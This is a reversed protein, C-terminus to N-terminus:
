DKKEKDCSVIIVLSVTICSILIIPLLIAAMTFETISAAFSQNKIAESIMYGILLSLPISVCISTIIGTIYAKKKPMYLMSDKKM